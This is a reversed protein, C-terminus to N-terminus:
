TTKKLQRLEPWNWILLMKGHPLGLPRIFLRILTRTINLNKLCLGLNYYAESNYPNPNRNTLTAIAKEFYNKSKLFRGKKFYWLGMANNSKTDKPDRKLAEEYYDTAIYTAHRYQEIHLGTLFLQECSEIQHPLKAAIAAEPLEGVIPKEPSYSIM